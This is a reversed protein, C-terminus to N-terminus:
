AEILSAMWPTARLAASLRKNCRHHKPCPDDEEEWMALFSSLAHELLPLCRPTIQLFAICRWVM